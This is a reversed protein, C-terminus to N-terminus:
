DAEEGAIRVVGDLPLGVAEPHAEVSTMLLVLRQAPVDADPTGARENLLAGDVAPPHPDGRSERQGPGTRVAHEQADGHLLAVPAQLRLGQNALAEFETSFQQRPGRDLVLRNEVADMVTNTLESAAVRRQRPVEVQQAAIRARMRRRIEDLSAFHSFRPAIIASGVS